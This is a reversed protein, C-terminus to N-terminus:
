VPAIASSQKSAGSCQTDAAAATDLTIALISQDLPAVTVGDHPAQRQAPNRGSGSLLSGRGPLSGPDESAKQVRVHLGDVRCLPVPERFFTM